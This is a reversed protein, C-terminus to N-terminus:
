EKNIEEVVVNVNREIYYNSSKEILFNKYEEIEKEDNILMQIKEYLELADNSNVLYKSFKGDLFEEAAGSGTTSVIPCGFSAAENIVLGWCEYRTPLLLM